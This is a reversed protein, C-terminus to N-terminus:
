TEKDNQELKESDIWVVRAHRGNFVAASKISEIVSLYADDLHTYKGVIAIRVEKTAGDHRKKGEAWKRMDPKVAGLGLKEAIYEGVGHEQFKLPVDYISEVTPAPIVARKEIGCLHSIKELLSTPIKEDARGSREPREPPDARALIMDPNLGIRRLERVSLQTPKTKLEKTARLYPLLTLHAHFIREGGLEARLQRVAELFPDGGM